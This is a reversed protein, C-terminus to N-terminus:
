RTKWRSKKVLSFRGPAGRGDRSSNVAANDASSSEGAAGPQSNNAERAQMLAIQNLANKLERERKRRREREHTLEASLEQVRSNLRAETEALVARRNQLASEKAQLQQRLTQIEAALRQDQAQM